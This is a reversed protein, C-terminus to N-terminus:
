PRREEVQCKMWRGREDITVIGVIDFVRAGRRLRMGATVGDRHRMWVAATMRADVRDDRSLESAANPWIAAWVEAFHVWTEIAGGADDPARQPAEITVRHILDGACVPVNRQM